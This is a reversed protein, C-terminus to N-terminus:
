RNILNNRCLEHSRVKFGERDFIYETYMLYDTDENKTFATKKRLIDGM